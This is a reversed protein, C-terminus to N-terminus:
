SGEIWRKTIVAEAAGLKTPTSLKVPTRYPDKAFWATGRKRPASLASKKVFGGTIVSSIEVKTTDFWGLPTWVREDGVVKITVLRERRGDWAYYDFELGPKLDLRRAAYVSSLADYIPTVTTFNRDLTRGNKKKKSLVLHRHHRFETDYDIVKGNERINFTSKLPLFTREDVVVNLTDDIPYFKSLFPSSRLFAALQVAPKGKHNVRDGVAFIAEGGVTDFMKIDYKLREGPQFPINGLEPLQTKSTPRKTPWRQRKINGKIKGKHRKGRKVGSVWVKKKAPAKKAQAVADQSGSALAAIPLSVAFGLVLARLTTARM